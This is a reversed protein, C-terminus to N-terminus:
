CEFMLVVELWGAKKLSFFFTGKFHSVRASFKEYSFMNLIIGATACPLLTYETLTHVKYILPFAKVRNM